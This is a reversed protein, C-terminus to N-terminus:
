KEVKDKAPTKDLDIDDDRGTKFNEEARTSTVVIIEAKPRSGCVLSSPFITRMNEHERGMDIIEKQRMTWADRSATIINMLAKYNSQDFNPVAEAVAKFLSGGGGRAESNGVVLAQLAQAQAKTVQFNQSIKKQMNDLESRNDVTKASILNTLMVFRNSTQIWWSGLIMGLIGVSILGIVFSKM